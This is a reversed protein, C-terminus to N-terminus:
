PHDPKMRDPMRSYGQTRIVPSAVPLGVKRPMEFGYGTDYSVHRVIQQALRSGFSRHTKDPRM